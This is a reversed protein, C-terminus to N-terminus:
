LPDSLILLEDLRLVEKAASAFLKEAEECCLIALYPQAVDDDSNSVHSSRVEHLLSAEPM